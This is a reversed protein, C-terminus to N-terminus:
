DRTASTQRRGISHEAGWRLERAYAFRVPAFEVNRLYNGWRVSNRIIWSVRLSTGRRDGERERVLRWARQSPRFKQYLFRM